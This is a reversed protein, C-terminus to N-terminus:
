DLLTWDKPTQTSYYNSSAADGKLPYGWGNLAWRNAVNDEAGNHYKFDLASLEEQPALLIIEASPAEYPKRADQALTQAASSVNKLEEM